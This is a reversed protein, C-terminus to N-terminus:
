FTETTTLLLKNEFDVKVLVNKRDGKFRLHGNDSNVCLYNNEVGYIYKEGAELKACKRLLQKHISYRGDDLISWEDFNIEPIYQLDNSDLPVINTDPKTGGTKNIFYPAGIDHLGVYKTGSKFFYEPNEDGDRKFLLRLPIQEPTTRWADYHALANPLKGNNNALYDTDNVVTALSGDLVYPMCFVIDKFKVLGASEKPLRDNSIWDILCPNPLAKFKDFKARFEPSVAESSIEIFRGKPRWMEGYELRTLEEFLKYRCFPGQQENYDAITHKTTCNCKGFKKPDKYNGNSDKEIELHGFPHCGVFAICDENSKTNTALEPYKCRCTLLVNTETNQALSDVSDVTLIATGLNSSCKFDKYNSFNPIVYGENDKSPELKLVTNGTKNKIEVGIPLKHCNPNVNPDCKEFINTVTLDKVYEFRRLKYAENEVIEKNIIRRYFLEAVYIVLIVFITLM